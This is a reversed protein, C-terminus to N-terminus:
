KKQPTLLCVIGYILWIVISIVTGGLVRKALDATRILEPIRIRTFVYALAPMFTFLTLLVPFKCSLKRM